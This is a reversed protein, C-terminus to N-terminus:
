SRKSWLDSNCFCGLVEMSQIDNPNIDGIGGSLPIQHDTCVTSPASLLVAAVYVVRPESCSAAQM